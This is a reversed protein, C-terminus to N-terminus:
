EAKLSQIPNMLAAKIAQFSVTLLTITLAGTGAVVFVWWSIATRYEYNQLWNHLLYYSVPIAIFCSILVLWVFEGSLMGWVNFVSAGLVKRIGIEKTRQEAIFSALGFLGLCSILIALISFFGSLKGIREEAAFKKAYEEDAFKFDFPMAPNYSKFVPEIKALADNVSLKSNLRLSITNGPWQLISALTPRVPKYPSDAIVDKIVGIIKFTKGDGRRISEGIPNELNMYKVAAENIVYASSDSAFGKSFDRGATFQWGVTKGYDHNVWDSVFHDQFNPDKGKWDYGGWNPGERSILGSSEAMDTVAGTALLDNKVAEYHNHIENTKMQLYVLGDGSYGVSRTKTFQVQRYVMMTGIILAVSVTFQLVVLVKRPLSAYRGARFTGKLVKLPQFSSLYIAPYSGAMLGTLFTIGLCLAWFLPSTWFISIEKDAVQNFWSLALQVLGISTIFALSSVLVSESLFQFILQKRMSGIAKRIGVERARKESKATSLNMFNICALLLIFVGIMGFLWVFQIRGGTNVGQKFEEYLHWKSMPHLLFEIVPDSAGKEANGPKISKIKASVKALDTHPALQALIQVENSEWNDKVMWPRSSLYLDFPAVFSLNKFESNFPLDEYIGTVKVDVQNDMKVTKNIPDTTGFLKKASTESLLISHIDKLGDKTGQIIELALIEPGEPEMFNGSQNFKNEGFALIHDDTFSSIAVREFDDAFSSRLANSVPLPSHIGTFIQGTSLTIQRMVRAIRHYNKHYHNFSLEDYIWLAILMAVAMGVALGGINILSSFRNKGLSRFAIKFYNKFM